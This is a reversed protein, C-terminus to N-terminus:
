IYGAKKLIRRLLISVKLGEEEALGELKDKESSTLYTRIPQDQREKNKGSLIKRSEGKRYNDLNLGM